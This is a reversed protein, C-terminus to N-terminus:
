STPLPYNDALRKVVIARRKDNAPAITYGGDPSYAYEAVLMASAPLEEIKSPSKLKTEYADDGFRAKMIEEAGSKWARNTKKTVLKQGPIEVGDQMRRLAEEELAKILMRARPIKAMLEGLEEHSAHMVDLTGTGEVVALEQKIAPCGLKAPCFRCHEGPNLTRADSSPHAPGTPDAKNMASVLTYKLWNMLSQDSEEFFRIPGHPHFARPQVIGMGVHKIEHMDYVFGAAYYRLQPNEYADVAIGAGHKYDIIEAYSGSTIGVDLTGYFLPHIEPHALSYEVHLLGDLEKVRKRVFDLYTQMSATEEDDFTIGNWDRDM